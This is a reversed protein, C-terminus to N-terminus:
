AGDDLLRALSEATVSPKPLLELGLEAAKAVAGDTGSVLVVRVGPLTSGIQLAAAAGDVRPMQFDILVVDPRLDGALAIADHGDEAEGVVEAQAPLLARLLARFNPDDDVLLVRM